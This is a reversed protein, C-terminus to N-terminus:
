KAIIVQVGYSVCECGLSEVTECIMEKLEHVDYNVNERLVNEVESQILEVEESTPEQNAENFIIYVDKGERGLLSYEFINIYYGVAAKM